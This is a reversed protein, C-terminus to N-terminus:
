PQLDSNESTDTDFLLIDTDVDIKEKCGINETCNFDAILKFTDSDAEEKCSFDNIIKDNLKFLKDLELLTYACKKASEKDLSVKTKKCSRM